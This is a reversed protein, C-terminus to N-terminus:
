KSHRVPPSGLVATEDNIVRPFAEGVITFIEHVQKFSNKDLKIQSSKKEEKITPM